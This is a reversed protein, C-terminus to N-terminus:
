LQANRIQPEEFKNHHIRVHKVCSESLAFNTNTSLFRGSLESKTRLCSCSMVKVIWTRVIVVM